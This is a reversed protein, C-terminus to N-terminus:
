AMRATVLERWARVAPPLDAIREATTKRIHDTRCLSQLNEMDWPAGGKDLPVRHDVELRGPRGCLRCRFKDRALVQWRVRQWRARNLALHHRSM